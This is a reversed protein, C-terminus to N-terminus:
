RGRKLGRAYLYHNATNTAKKETKFLVNANKNLHHWANCSWVASDSQLSTSQLPALDFSHELILPQLNVARWQFDFPKKIPNKKEVEKVSHPLYCVNRQTHKPPIPSCLDYICSLHALKFRPHTKGPHSSRSYNFDARRCFVKCKTHEDTVTM